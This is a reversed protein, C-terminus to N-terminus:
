QTTMKKYSCLLHDAEYAELGKKFERLKSGWPRYSLPNLTDTSPLTPAQCHNPKYPTTNPDTMQIPWLQKGRAPPSIGARALEGLFGIRCNEASEM